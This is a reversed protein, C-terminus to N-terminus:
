ITENEIASQMHMISDYDVIHLLTSAGCDELLETMVLAVHGTALLSGSRSCFPHTIVHGDKAHSATLM